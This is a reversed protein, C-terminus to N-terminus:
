SFFLFIAAKLFNPGRVKQNQTQNITERGRKGRERRLYFLTIKWLSVLGGWRPFFLTTEIIICIINSQFLHFIVFTKKEVYENLLQHQVHTVWMTIGHQGDQISSPTSNGRREPWSTINPKSRERCPIGSHVSVVYKLSSGCVCVCVCVANYVWM